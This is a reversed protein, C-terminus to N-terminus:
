SHPASPPKAAACTGCSIAVSEFASQSADDIKEAFVILALLGLTTKM